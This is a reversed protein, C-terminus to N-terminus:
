FHAAACAFFKEEDYEGDRCSTEYFQVVEGLEDVDLSGGKDADLKSFMEKVKSEHKKWAEDREEINAKSPEGLARFADM